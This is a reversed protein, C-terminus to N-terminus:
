AKLYLEDFYFFGHVLATMTIHAAVINILNTSMILVICSLPVPILINSLSFCISVFEKCLVFPAWLGLMNMPVLLYNYLNNSQNRITQNIIIIECYYLLM